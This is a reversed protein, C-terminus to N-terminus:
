GGDEEGERRRREKEIICMYMPLTDLRAKFKSTVLSLRSSRIRGRGGPIVAPVV